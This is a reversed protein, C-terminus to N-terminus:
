AITSNKEHVLRHRWEIGQAREFGRRSMLAQGLCRLFQMHRRARQTVLDAPQFFQKTELQEFAAHARDCKRGGTSLKIRAQVRPEAVDMVRDGRQAAFALLAHEHEACRRSKGGLPQRRPEVAKCASVRLDIDTNGRRDAIGIECGVPDVCRNAVHGGVSCGVRCKHDLLQDLEGQQRYAAGPEDLCVARQLPRLRELAHRQDMVIRKGTTGLHRGPGLPELRGTYLAHIDTAPQPEVAGIVGEIGRAFTCAHQKRM